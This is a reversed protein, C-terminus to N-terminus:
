RMRGQQFLWEGRHRATGTIFTVIATSGGRWGKAERQALFSEDTKVFANQLAQKISLTSPRTGAGIERALQLHLQAAAFKAADVGSHGDFVAFYGYSHPFETGDPAVPHLHPEVVHEDEMEPRYGQKSHYGIVFRIPCSPPVPSQVEDMLEQVPSDADAHTADGGASSDVASSPVYFKPKHKYLFLSDFQQVLNATLVPLSDTTSM